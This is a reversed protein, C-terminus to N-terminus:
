AGQTTFTRYLSPCFGSIKGLNRERSAMGFEIQYAGAEVITSGVDHM